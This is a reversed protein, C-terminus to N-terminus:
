MYWVCWVWKYVHVCVYTCWVFVYLVCCVSLVCVDGRESVHVCECRSGAEGQSRAAAGGALKGVQAWLGRTFLAEPLPFRLRSLERPGLLKEKM